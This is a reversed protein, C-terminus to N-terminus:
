QKCRKDQWSVAEGRTMGSRLRSSLTQRTLGYRKALETITVLEDSEANREKCRKDRASRARDIALRRSPTLMWAKGAPKARFLRTEPDIWATRKAYTPREPFGPLVEISGSFAAVAAALAIREAERSSPTNM